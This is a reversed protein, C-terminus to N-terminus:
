IEAIEPNRRAEGADNEATEARVECEQIVAGEPLVPGEVLEHLSFRPIQVWSLSHNSFRCIQGCFSKWGM